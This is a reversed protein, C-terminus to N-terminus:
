VKFHLGPLAPRSASTMYASSGRGFTVYFNSSFYVQGTSFLKCFGQIHGQIRMMMLRGVVRRATDCRQGQLTLSPYCM